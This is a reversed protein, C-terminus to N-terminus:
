TKFEKLIWDRFIKVKKFTEIDKPCIVYLDVTPSEIYDLIRVLNSQELGPHEGPLVTIGIGQQALIFREQTSNNEIYPVRLNGKPRHISLIWNSTEYDKANEGYSILRHKDLDQPTKPEGNKELYERSAYMNLHYTSLHYQNYKQSEPLLPHILIDCDRTNFDPLFDTTKFQFYIQPHDNLFRHIKPMLYLTSLGLVCNVKLHGQPTEPNERINIKAREIESFIKRTSEFLIEGKETLILGKPSRKFLKQGIQKELTMIQRSLSSQMVGLKKAASTMNGCTCAYYFGKLKDWDM